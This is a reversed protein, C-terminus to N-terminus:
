LPDAIATHGDTRYHRQAAEVNQFLAIGCKRCGYGEINGMRCKTGDDSYVVDVASHTIHFRKGAAESSTFSAIQEKDKDKALKVTEEYKRENDTSCDQINAQDRIATGSAAADSTSGPSVNHLNSGCTSSDLATLEQSTCLSNANDAAPQSPPFCLMRAASPVNECHTIALSSSRGAPVSVATAVTSSSSKICVTTTEQQHGPDLARQLKSARRHKKGSDHEKMNKVGSILAKCIDCWIYNNAPSSSDTRSFCRVSNICIDGHEAYSAPGTFRKQCTKCQYPGSNPQLTFDSSYPLNGDPANDPNYLQVTTIATSSKSATPSASDSLNSPSELARTEQHKDLSDISAQLSQVLNSSSSLSPLPRLGQTTSVSHLSTMDPSVSLSTVISPSTNTLPRRLIVQERKLQAAMASKHKKGNDHQRLNVAGSIETNCVDCKIYNDKTRDPIVKTSFLKRHRNSDRHEAYSAPGTFSKNCPLCKYPEDSLKLKMTEATDYTFLFLISRKGTYMYLGLPDMVPAQDYTEKCTQSFVTPAYSDVTWSGNQFTSGNSRVKWNIAEMTYSPMITISGNTTIKTWEDAVNAMTYPTRGIKWSSPGESYSGRPAKFTHTITVIITIPYNKLLYNATDATKNKDSVATLQFGLARHGKKDKGLADQRNKLEKLLQLRDTSKIESPSAWVHLIGYHYIRDNWLNRFSSQADSTKLQDAIMKGYRYDFSIGYSTKSTAATEKVKARFAGFSFIDRAGRFEKKAPDYYATTYYLLDCLGDEPYVHTNFARHSITCLLLGGSATRPKPDTRPTAAPEQFKDPTPSIGKTTHRARKTTTPTKKQVVLTGGSGGGGGLSGGENGSDDSKEGDGAGGEGGISTTIFYVTAFILLLLLLLAIIIRFKKRSCLTVKVTKTWHSSNRFSFPLCWPSPSSLPFLFVELFLSAGNRSLNSGGM